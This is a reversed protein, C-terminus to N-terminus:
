LNIFKLSAYFVAGAICLVVVAYKLGGFILDWAKDENEASEIKLRLSIVNRSIYFRFLYSLVFVTCTLVVTLAVKLSMGETLFGLVFGIGFLFTFGIITYGYLNIPKSHLILKRISFTQEEM